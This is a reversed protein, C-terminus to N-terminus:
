LEQALAPGPATEEEGGLPRSAVQPIEIQVTTGGEPRNWCQIHGRHDQIIGYCATLGIGATQGVRRSTSFPDFAREPERMAPGNDSFELIVANEQCRTRV